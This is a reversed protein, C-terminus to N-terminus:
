ISFVGIDEFINSIVQNTYYLIDYIRLVSLDPNKFFRLNAELIKM